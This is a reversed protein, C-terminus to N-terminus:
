LCFRYTIYIIVIFNDEGWVRFKSIPPNIVTSSAADTQSPLPIENLLEFVDSEVKDVDEDEKIKLAAEFAEATSRRRVTKSQPSASFLDM